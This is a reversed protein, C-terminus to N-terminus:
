HTSGILMLRIGLAFMAFSLLVLIVKSKTKKSIKAGLQAGIIAGISIGVAPIWMIHSLLVHSIVGALASVALVFHSTATAVHVPFGLLYVMLPVHIVGGGIGFISSLFGVFSSSLIGVTRNYKFNAPLTNLNSHHKHSANWYMLLAMFILFAGFYLDLMANSFKDVIYSGLFAGPLTALAFPIAANFYVRKQWIYALTGSVANALVIFLSTGAIQGANSFYPMLSNESMFFIFIPVCILGGGIGVLTGFTGVGVGLLLFFIYEM